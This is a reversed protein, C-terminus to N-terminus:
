SVGGPVRGAVGAVHAELEEARREATHEALVRRRAAEGIAAREEEDTERLWRLTDAPEHAILIEAGPVFFTDLGEWWDSIM